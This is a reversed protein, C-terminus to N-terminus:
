HEVLPPRICDASFWRTDKRNFHNPIGPGHIKRGQAEDEALLQNLELLFELAGQGDPIGYADHLAADLSAQADKLPHPGEIEAAQHLARLSWGNQEM